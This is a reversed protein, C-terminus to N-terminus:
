PQPKREHNTISGCYLCVHLGSSTKLHIKCNITSREGSYPTCPLRESRIKVSDTKESIAWNKLWGPQRPGSHSAWNLCEGETAKYGRYAQNVASIISSSESHVSSGLVHHPQHRSSRRSNSGVMETRGRVRSTIGTM